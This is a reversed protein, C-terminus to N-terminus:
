KEEQINVIKYNFLGQNNEYVCCAKNGSLAQDKGYSCEGRSTKNLVFSLVQGRRSIIDPYLFFHACLKCSQNIM